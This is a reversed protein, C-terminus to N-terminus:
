YSIYNIRNDYGQNYAEQELMYQQQRMRELCGREWARAAGPNGYYPNNSCDNIAQYSGADPNYRPQPKPKLIKTVVVGTIFGALASQEREGWAFANSTFVLLTLSLFLKKM